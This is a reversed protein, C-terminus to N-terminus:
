EAGALQTPGPARDGRAPWRARAAGPGRRQPRVHRARGRPPIAASCLSVGPIGTAYPDLAARPRLVLQLADNAGTVVDGGVYNANHAEM